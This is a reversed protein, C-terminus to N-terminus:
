KLDFNVETPKKDVDATLGSMEPNNYKKPVLDKPPKEGPRPMKTPDAENAVVSVKYHGAVAGDGEAFTSLSYTGDPRIIGSAPRGEGGHFGVAGKTVPQGQFTIKGTVAYTPAHEMPEEGCGGLLGLGLVAALAPPRRQRVSRM